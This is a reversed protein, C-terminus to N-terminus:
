EHFKTRDDVLRKFLAIYEGESKQKKWAEHISKCQCKNAEQEKGLLLTIV